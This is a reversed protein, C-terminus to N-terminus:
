LTRLKKQWHIPITINAYNHWVPVGGGITLFTTTLSQLTTIANDVASNEGLSTRYDGDSIGKAGYFFSRVAHGLPDRGTFVIAQARTLSDIATGSGYSSGGGWTAPNRVNSGRLSVEMTITNV